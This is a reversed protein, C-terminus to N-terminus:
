TAEGKAKAIAACAANARHLAVRAIAMDDDVTHARYPDAIERLAVILDDRQKANREADRWSADVNRSACDACLGVETCVVLVPLEGCEDCMPTDINM